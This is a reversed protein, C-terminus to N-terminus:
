QKKSITKPLISPKGNFRALACPRTDLLKLNHFLRHHDVGCPISFRSCFSSSYFLASLPFDIRHIDFSLYTTSTSLQIYRRLPCRSADSRANLFKTIKPAKHYLPPIRGFNNGLSKHTRIRSYVIKWSHISSGHSFLSARTPTALLM